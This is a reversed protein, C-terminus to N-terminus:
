TVVFQMMALCTAQHINGLPVTLSICELQLEILHLTLEILWMKLFMHEEFFLQM